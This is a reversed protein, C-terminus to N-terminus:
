QGLHWSQRELQKDKGMCKIHCLWGRMEGFWKGKRCIGEKSADRNVLGCMDSLLSLSNVEREVAEPLM